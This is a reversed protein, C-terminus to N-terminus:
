ELLSFTSTLVVLVKNKIKSLILQATTLSLFIPKLKLKKKSDAPNKASYNIEASYVLKEGSTSHHKSM